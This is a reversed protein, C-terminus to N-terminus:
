PPSHSTEMVRRTGLWGGQEYQKTLLELETAERFIRDMCSSKTSLIRTEQLKFLHNHSFSQKVVASKGAQGLRM